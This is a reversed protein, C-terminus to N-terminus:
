RSNSQMKCDIEQRQSPFAILLTCPRFDRDRAKFGSGPFMSIHFCPRDFKTLDLDLSFTIGM